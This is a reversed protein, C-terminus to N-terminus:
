QSHLASELYESFAPRYLEGVTLILGNDLKVSTRSAEAIHNLAIIYSRHIRMFRDAPLQEILKKLSFLVVVPEDADTLHIKVYESMSEVYVIKRVDVSVIRREAKFHLFLEDEKSSLAEHMRQSELRRRSNEDLLAKVRKERRRNEVYYYAGLDVGILLIGIILKSFEPRMPRHRRPPEPGRGGPDPPPPLVSGPPPAMGEMWPPPPPGQPRGSPLFCWVGFLIILLATLCLYLPLKKRILRALFFHHILLLILFPLVLLM